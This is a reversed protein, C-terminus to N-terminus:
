FCLAFAKGARGKNCIKGSQKLIGEQIVQAGGWIAYVVLAAILSGALWQAYFTRDLLDLTDYVDM